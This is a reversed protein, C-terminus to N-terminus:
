EARMFFYGPVLMCYIAYQNTRISRHTCKQIKLRMCLNGRKLPLPSERGNFCKKARAFFLHISQIFCSKCIFPTKEHCSTAFSCVFCKISPPRGRGHDHTNDISHHAISNLPLISKKKRNSCVMFFMVPYIGPPHQYM